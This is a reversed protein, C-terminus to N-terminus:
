PNTNLLIEEVIKGNIFRSVSAYRLEPTMMEVNHKFENYERLDAVTGCSAFDSNKYILTVAGYPKKLENFQWDNETLEEITKDHFKIYRQKTYGCHKCYIYEEGTKYYFDDTAEHGCNPCEIETLVSAM